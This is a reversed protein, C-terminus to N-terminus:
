TAIKYLRNRQLTTTRLVKAGSKIWYPESSFSGSVFEPNVIMEDEEYQVKPNKLIGTNLGIYRGKRTNVENRYGTTVFVVEDGPELVQGIDNTFNTRLTNKTM